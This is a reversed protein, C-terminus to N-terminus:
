ALRNEVIWAELERIKRNAVSLEAELQTVRVSTPAFQTKKAVRARELQEHQDQTIISPQGPMTGKIEPVVGLNKVIVDSVEAKVAELNFADPIPGLNVGLVITAYRVGSTNPARAVYTQPVYIWEGTGAQLGVIITNLKFDREYAIKDLGVSQYYAEFPKEGAALVDNITRLSRVTYLAKPTVLGAYPTRLEFVGSMGISPVFSM